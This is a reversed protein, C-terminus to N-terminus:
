GSYIRGTGRGSGSYCDYDKDCHGGKEPDSLLHRLDSSSKVTVTVLGQTKSRNNLHFEAKAEVKPANGSGFDGFQAQLDSSLVGVTALSFALWLFISQFFQKSMNLGRAM